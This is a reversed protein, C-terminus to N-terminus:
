VARVDTVCRIAQSPSRATQLNQQSEFARNSKLLSGRFRKRFNKVIDFWVDGSCDLRRLIEDCDAPIRGPQLRRFQRGTWDLLRLYDDLTMPLCGKNDARRGTQKDRVRKRPPQLAIPALWGAREGHECQRDYANIDGTPGKEGAQPPSPPRRGSSPAWHEEAVQRDCIREQVSTFDSKEPTKAIRARVPNLDVYAMCAALAAEDALVQAKFRGEWFHGTVEDDKNGRRAIPEALCRMFWSISSLRKRKEKLGDVDNRIQNLEFESATEPRGDTKRRQPFLNWWRQAVEDDSWGKVVDPRTRVVVHLHNSMVAFAMVDLGFIGALEELRDRIWQKRHSYDKGTDPNVGCLFTRRVCRNILHFVQVEDEACLETRNVRPM